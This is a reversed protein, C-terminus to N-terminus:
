IRVQNESKGEVENHVKRYSQWVMSTMGGPFLFPAQLWAIAPCVPVFHNHVPDFKVPMGPPRHLQQRQCLRVTLGPMEDGTRCTALMIAHNCMYTYM